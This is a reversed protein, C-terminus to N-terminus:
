DHSTITIRIVKPQEGHDDTEESAAIQALEKTRFISIFEQQGEEEFQGILFGKCTPGSCGLTWYEHSHSM